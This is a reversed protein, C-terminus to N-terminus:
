VFTTGEFKQLRSDLEAMISESEEFSMLQKWGFGNLMSCGHIRVARWPDNVGLDEMQSRAFTLVHSGYTISWFGFVMEEATMNAPLKLDGVAIADHVVGAVSGMCQLEFHRILEQRNPTSKGRITSNNGFQEIAFHDRCTQVYRESALGVAMMRERSKNSIMAAIGFMQQRVQMAQCVLALVIEEKNPFHKYLTGKATGLESALKDMSLAEYGEDLLIRRSIQLIDVERQQIEQQKRSIKEM